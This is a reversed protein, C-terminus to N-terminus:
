RAPPSPPSPNRAARGSAGGGFDVGYSFWAAVPQGDRMGPHFVWGAAERLLRRNYGRDKTPPNLRTSDAVVVGQADVFVWVEFSLGQLDDHGPPVIMMKPTPPLVRSLGTEADGGDGEGDGDDLGPPGLPGPDGLLAAVDFVPEVDIEAPEVDIDVPLPIQPVVIPRSPPAALAVAQMGGRVARDDNADPGAAASASEPVLRPERGLLFLLHLLLSLAVGGRWTRRESRRRGRIGEGTAQEPKM